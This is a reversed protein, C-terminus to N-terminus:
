TASPVKRLQELIDCADGNLEYMGEVAALYDEPTDISPDAQTSEM